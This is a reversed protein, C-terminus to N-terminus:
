TNAHNVQQAPSKLLPLAIPGVSVRSNETLYYYLDVIDFFRTDLDFRTGAATKSNGSEAGVVWQM